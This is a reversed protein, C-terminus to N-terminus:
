HASEHLENMEKGLFFDLTTLIMVIMGLQVLAYFTDSYFFSVAGQESLSIILFSDIIDSVIMLELAFLIHLGVVCRLKRIAVGRVEWPERKFEARFWGFAGRASGLVLISLGFMDIARAVWEFLSTINEIM